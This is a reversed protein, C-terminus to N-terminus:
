AFEHMVMILQARRTRQREREASLHKATPNRMQSAKIEETEALPKMM